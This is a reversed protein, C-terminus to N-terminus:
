LHKKNYKQNNKRINQCPLKSSLCFPFSHISQSPFPGQALLQVCTKWLTATYYTPVSGIPSLTVSPHPPPPALCITLWPIGSTLRVALTFKISILVYWGTIENWTISLEPIFPIRNIVSYDWFLHFTMIQCKFHSADVNFDAAFWINGICLAIARKREKKRKFKHM